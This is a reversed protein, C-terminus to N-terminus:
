QIDLKEKVMPGVDISQDSTYVPNRQSTDFVYMLELEKAVEAVAKDLKGMVEQLLNAELTRLKQGAQMQFNQLREQMSQVETFMSELILSDLENQQEMLENYKRNIEVQMREAQEDYRTRVTQLSDSAKSYEPMLVIIQQSEIHGFKYDQGFTFSSFTLFGLVLLLNVIKKM